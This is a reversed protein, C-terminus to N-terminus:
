SVDYNSSLLYGQTRLGDEVQRVGAKHTSLWQNSITLSIQKILNNVSEDKQFAKKTLDELMQCSNNALNFWNDPNLPYKPERKIYGNSDRLYKREYDEKHFKSTLIIRAEEFLNEL